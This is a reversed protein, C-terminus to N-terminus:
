LLFGFLLPIGGALMVLTYKTAAHRRHPGVGWLSVLFYLPVLSLEWFLFFLVLDLALFVGLTAALQLLLLSYYLRPLFHISNWSAIVIGTFLLATFAPFLVSIGDVGLLYHVNLSPMWAAQELLQFGARDADFMALVALTMALTATASGAALYRARNPVLWVLIAGLLPTFLTFSLWPLGGRM